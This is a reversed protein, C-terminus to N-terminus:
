FEDSTDFNYKLLPGWEDNPINTEHRFLSTKRMFKKISKLFKFIELRKFLLIKISLLIKKESIGDLDM